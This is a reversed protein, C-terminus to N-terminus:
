GLRVPQKHEQSGTNRTRLPPYARFAPHIKIVRKDRNDAVVAVALIGQGQGLIQKVRKIAM